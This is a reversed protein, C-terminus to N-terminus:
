KLTIGPNVIELGQSSLMPKPINNKIHESLLTTYRGNQEGSAVILSIERAKKTGSIEVLNSEQEGSLCLTTLEPLITMGGKNDVIRILADISNSRYIFQKNKRISKLDCFDNIQDRFCNGEELLWLNEYDIDQIRIDIGQSENKSTYFFFKEYFLPESHIGYASVPTSIIGAHLEGKRVGQIVQETIMEHIDLRFQPYQRQLSDAFLPVLFPALTPIIGLKMEGSFDETLSQSYARLKHSQVVLEEARILFAAGDPSVTIPNKTRDFLRVGIEDELKQIQMSLGPQSMNLKTAARHFSGCEKLKLAYELQTLTM